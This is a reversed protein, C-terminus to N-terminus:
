VMSGREDVNTIILLEHAPVDLKDLYCIIGFQGPVLIFKNM